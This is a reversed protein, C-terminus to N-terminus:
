ALREQRPVIAAALAILAVALALMWPSTVWLRDLRLADIIAPKSTLALSTAFIRLLALGVAVSVGAVAGWILSVLLSLGALLLMPGLWVSALLTFGTGRTLALLCTIASAFALDYGCVLALRGILVVRPSTPTALTVELATDHEPGYIFAVGVATVLPVVLGLLAPPVAPGSWISAVAFVMTLVIASTIWIGQPILMAQARLVAWQQALSRPATAWALRLAERAREVPSPADIRAWVSALLAPSPAGVGVVSEHTAEAITRWAALEQRCPLCAALHAALRARDPADLTGNVYGPMLDNPHADHREPSM